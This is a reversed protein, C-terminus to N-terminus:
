EWAGRFPVDAVSSLELEAQEVQGPMRYIGENTKMFAPKPGFGFHEPLARDGGVWSMDRGFREEDKRGILQYVDRGFYDTITWHRGREMWICTNGLLVSTQIGAEQDNLDSWYSENVGFRSILYMFDHSHWATSPAIDAENNWGTASAFYGRLNQYAAYTQDCGSLYDELEADPVLRNYQDIAFLTMGMGAILM